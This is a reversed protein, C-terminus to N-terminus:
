VRLGQEFQGVRCRTTQAVKVGLDIACMAFWGDSVPVQLALVDKDLSVAGATDGVQPQGDFKVPQKNRCRWVGFSDLM